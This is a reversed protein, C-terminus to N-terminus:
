RWAGTIFMSLITMYKSYLEEKDNEKEKGGYFVQPSGMCVCLYGIRKEHDSIKYKEFIANVGEPTECRDLKKVLSPKFFNKVTGKM